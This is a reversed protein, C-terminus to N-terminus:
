LGRFHWCVRKEMEGVCGRRWRELIGEERDRWYIEGRRKRELVDGKGDRLM